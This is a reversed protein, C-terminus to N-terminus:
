NFVAVSFKMVFTAEWDTEFWAAEMMGNQHSATLM